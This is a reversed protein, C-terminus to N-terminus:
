DVNVGIVCHRSSRHVVRSVSDPLVVLPRGVHFQLSLCPGSFLLLYQVLKVAEDLGKSAHTYVVINDDHDLSSNRSLDVTFVLRSLCVGLDSSFPRTCLM